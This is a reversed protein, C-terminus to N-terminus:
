RHTASHPHRRTRSGVILIATGALGGLLGALHFPGGFSTWQQGALLGSATAGAVVGLSYFAYFMGFATGREGPATADAVLANAAPFILGFGLGYIAMAGLAAELKSWGGLLLLGLGALWLGLGIPGYRGRVDGARSSPSAMVLLAVLAFASFAAGTHGGRYGLDELYLPLHTVVTGLGFTLAVAAFYALVLSRRGLLAALIRNSPADKPEPRHTEQVLLQALLAAALLLVAVAVFVATFGWRDRVVGSAAPAVMAALAILAGNAGMARGRKERPFLDGLLTFAAPALIAAALGHLGRVLVLDSPIRAAGYLLVAGGAALLGLVLLRKRGLRDLLYGAVVNGGLNTLSYIAVVLGVTGADAGLSRAYPAIVPFQSFSDFFSVLVVVAIALSTLRM